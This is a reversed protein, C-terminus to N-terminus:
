KNWVKILTLINAIGIFGLIAGIWALATKGGEIKDVLSKVNNIFTQHDKLTAQVRGLAGKEDDAGNGDIYALRRIVNGGLLLRIQALEYDSYPCNVQAEEIQTLRASKHKGSSPRKPCDTM